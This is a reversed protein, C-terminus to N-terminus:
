GKPGARLMAGLSALWEQLLLQQVRRGPRAYFPQAYIVAVSRIGLERAEAIVFSPLNLRASRVVFHAQLRTPYSAALWTRPQGAGVRLLAAFLVEPGAEVPRTEIDAVVAFGAPAALRANAPRTAAVRELQVPDPIVLGQSGQTASAPFVRATLATLAGIM